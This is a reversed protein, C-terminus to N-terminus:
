YLCGTKEVSQYTHSEFCYTNNACFKFFLPTAAEYDAWLCLENGLRISLNINFKSSYSQCLFKYAQNEDEKKGSIKLQHLIVSWDPEAL